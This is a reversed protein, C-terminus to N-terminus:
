FYIRWVEPGRTLEGPQARRARDYFAPLLKEGEGADVLRVQGPAEPPERFAGHRPEIEYEADRTAPGYGFRGYITAESAFLLSLPEGHREGDFAALSRDFEFGERWEDAEGQAFSEGFATELVPWYRRWDDDTDAIPRIEVDMGPNDRIAARIVGPKGSGGCPAWTLPVRSQSSRAVPPRRPPRLRFPVHGRTTDHRSGPRIVRARSPRTRM